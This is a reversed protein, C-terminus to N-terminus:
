SASAESAAYDAKRQEASASPDDALKRIAVVERIFHALDGLLPLAVATKTFRQPKQGKILRLLELVRADFSELANDSATATKTKPATNTTTAATDPKAKKPRTAPQKREKGDAGVTKELKPIESTSELDRRVKAVTKDDAKVQKAISNNSAGPKAKLVKAIVERKQKATLHRRHINLSLVVAHPDDGRYGWALLPKDTGRLRVNNGEPTAELEGLLALADLRNRGDLLRGDADLYVRELMGNAVIDDALAQLEDPPLLPFLDTAPHVKLHARWDFPEKSM